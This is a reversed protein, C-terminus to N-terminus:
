PAWRREFESHVVRLELTERELALFPYSSKNRIIKERSSCARGQEQEPKVLTPQTKFAKSGAM